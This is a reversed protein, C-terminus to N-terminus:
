RVFELRSTLWEGDRQVLVLRLRQARREDRGGTDRNRAVVDAAVLVEARDAELEGIGLARVTGYSIARSRQASAVLEDRGAAYEERFDGTAGALVDDVVPEMDRHDVRLFALAEARAADSVARYDASLERAAPAPEARGAGRTWTLVAAVALALVLAALLLNLPGWPVLTRRDVLTGVRRPGSGDPM